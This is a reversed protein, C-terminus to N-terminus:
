NPAGSVTEYPWDLIGGLDYINEYGADAMISVAEASRNGSRCYVIFTTSKDPYTNELSSELISLPLLESGDIRETVYESYERVDLLVISPNEEMMEIAQDADIKEIANSQCAGLLAVTFVMLSVMMWKRM